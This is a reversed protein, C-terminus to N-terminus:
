MFINMLGDILEFSGFFLGAGFTLHRRSVNELVFPFSSVALLSFALAFVVCAPITLIPAASPAIAVMSISMFAISLGILVAKKTGWRNVLPSIPIAAFASVALILSVYQKGELTESKFFDLKEHLLSPFINMLIANALGFALGCLVIKVFHDTHEEKFEVERRLNINKTSRRFLIGSGFILIGGTIFTNTAGISDILNVVVPELAYLLETILALVSMALPLQHAPAFLELMSNAPSHFINMSILWIVIMLPLIVKLSELPNGSVAFAVAMFVMATISIGVMFVVFHNGNKRIFYDGVIGAIPPIFVLVMAQAIKMFTELDTVEFKELVKPQYNHYAIWSIVVAANLAGLSLIQKWNTRQVSAVQSTAM